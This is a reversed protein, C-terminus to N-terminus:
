PGNDGVRLWAVSSNHLQSQSHPLTEKGCAWTGEGCHWREWLPQMGGRTGAKGEACSLGGTWAGQTPLYRAWHQRRMAAGSFLLPLWRSFLSSRLPLASRLGWPREGHVHWRTSASPGPSPCPPPNQQPTRKIKNKGM